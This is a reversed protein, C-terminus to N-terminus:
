SNSDVNLNNKKGETSKSETSQCQQNSMLLADLKYFISHHPTPAIHLSVIVIHKNTVQPWYPGISLVSSFVNSSGLRRMSVTACPGASAVADGFWMMEQMM